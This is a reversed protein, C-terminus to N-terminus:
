FNNKYFYKSQINEHVSQYKQKIQVALNINIM